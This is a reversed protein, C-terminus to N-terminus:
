RGAGNAGPRNSVVVPQKMIAQMPLALRRAVIDVYGGPANPHILTITRSPYDQAAAAGALAFVGAATAMRVRRLMIEGGNGDSHLWTRV